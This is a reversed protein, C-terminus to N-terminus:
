GWVGGEHEAVDQIGVNRRVGPSSGVVRVRPSPSNPTALEDESDSDYPSSLLYGIDFLHSSRTSRRSQTRFYSDPHHPAFPHRALRPDPHPPPHLAPNIDPLLTPPLSPKPHHSITHPFIQAQSNSTTAPKNLGSSTNASRSQPM